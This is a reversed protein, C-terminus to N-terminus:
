NNGLKKLYILVNKDNTLMM